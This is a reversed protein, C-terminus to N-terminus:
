ATAYNPARTGIITEELILRQVKKLGSQIEGVVNSILSSIARFPLELLEGFKKSAGKRVIRLADRQEEIRMSRKLVYALAQSSMVAGVFAGASTGSVVTSEFISIGNITSIFGSRLAENGVDSLNHNIVNNGANTLVKRLQYAQYPHIVAVYPGPAQANRLLAGAKFFLDATLENNGSGVTQSFGTFLNALDTDVKKAMADGLQRGIAVAVDQAASERGLDTLKIMAGIESCTVDVKTTNFATNSPIDTGDTLPIASVAPFIPIQATLGPTGSLDYNAVLPRIVTQESLTYIASQVINAYLESLITATAEDAM